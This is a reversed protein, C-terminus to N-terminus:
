SCNPIGAQRCGREFARRIFARIGDAAHRKSALFFGRWGSCSDFSRLIVKAQTSLPVYRSKGGKPMPLVPLGIELDVHEWRLRSQEERRLGTEVALAVLKWDKPDMVGQLRILEEESLTM